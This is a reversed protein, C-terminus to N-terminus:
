NQVNKDEDEHHEGTREGTMKMTIFVRGYSESIVPYLTEVAVGDDYFTIAQAQSVLTELYTILERLNTFTRPPLMSGDITEQCVHVDMNCHVVRKPGLQFRAEGYWLAKVLVHCNFWDGSTNSFLCM